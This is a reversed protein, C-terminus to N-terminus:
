TSMVAVLRFHHAEMNTPHSTEKIVECTVYHKGKTVKEDIYAVEAVNYPKSWYGSLRGAGSENDDVWCKADGLDYRSSRFYYVAIRGEAVDIDVSIRAGPTDSVWYHKEGRFDWARWGDVRSPTLPREKDNADACFPKPQILDLIHAANPPDRGASWGVQPDDEPLIDRIPQFIPTPPVAFPSAPGVLMRRESALVDALEPDYSHQWDASAVPDYDIVWDVSAQVDILEDFTLATQLTEDLTQARPPGIADLVCLQREFYGILIDALVRHGRINPHVGDPQFFSRKTSSPFRLYTNFMARKLSIYPIDYYHAIPLHVVQPDAYGQDQAVLPSWAGLIVVAPQSPLELLVRLLQDFFHQYISSAQDNVDFELIILDVDAPIHRTGCFAYYSSDMGGIAGNEIQHGEAGGDGFTNDIWWQLLTTYCGPGEPDGQHWEPSPHVGHCASVSGGLIGLKLPLGARAKGLARRVRAGSGEFLLSRDLTEQGYLRCLRDGETSSSGGCTCSAATAGTHSGSSAASSSGALLDALGKPGPLSPVRGTAQSVRQLVAYVIVLTIPVVLLCCLPRLLRSSSSSSSSHRRRSRFPSFSDVRSSTRGDVVARRAGNLSPSSALERQSGNVSFGKPRPTGDEDSDLLPAMVPTKASDDDDYAELEYREADRQLSRRRSDGFSSRKGTAASSSSPAQSQLHRGKLSGLESESM